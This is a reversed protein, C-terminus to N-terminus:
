RTELRGRPLPGTQERLEAAAAVDGALYGALFLGSLRQLEALGADDPPGPVEYRGILGGMYHDGEELVLAYAPGDPTAHDYPGLRWRWPRDIGDGTLGPDRTGGVSFTPLSLGAWGDDDLASIPGVGHLSLLAALGPVSVDRFEGSVPDRLPVGAVALSILVGFSHGAVARQAPDVRGGLGHESLLVDASELLLRIDAVRTALIRPGDAFTLGLALSESDIHTPALVAYGQAAWHDLVREYLEGSSNAGHSFVIFPVASKGAPLSVRLPIQRDEGPVPLLLRHVEVPPGAHACAVLTLWALAAILIRQM